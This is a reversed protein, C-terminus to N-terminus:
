ACVEANVLRRRLFTQLALREVYLTNGVINGRLEEADHLRMIQPRSVLLLQAIEVGRWRDKRVPVIASIVEDVNLKQVAEGETIERAWFRFERVDGKGNSVNWVWRLEGADVKATVTDADVGLAARVMDGTVLVTRNSISLNLHRQAIV